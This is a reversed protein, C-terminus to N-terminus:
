TAAATAQTTRRDREDLVREADISENQLPVDFTRTGDIAAPSPSVRRTHLEELYRVARDTTARLLKKFDPSPM